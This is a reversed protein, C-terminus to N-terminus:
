FAFTLGLSFVSRDFNDSGWKYKYDAGFTVNQTLTFDLGAGVNGIFKSDNDSGLSSDYNWGFVGFGVLPYFYVGNTLNFLYHAVFDVDWYSINENDKEFFYTFSPELRLNDVVTYQFKAGLGYNTYDDGTGIAFNVGAAMQGETQASVTTAGALLAACLVLTKMLKKM